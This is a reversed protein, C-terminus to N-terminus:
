DNRDAPDEVSGSCKETGYEICYDGTYEAGPRSCRWVQRGSDDFASFECFETEEEVKEESEEVHVVEVSNFPITFQPDFVLVLNGDKESVPKWLVSECPSNELQEQSDSTISNDTIINNDSAIDDDSSGSDYSLCGPLTAFLFLLSIVRM